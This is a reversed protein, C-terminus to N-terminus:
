NQLSHLINILRESLIAACLAQNRLSRKLSRKPLPQKRVPNIILPQSSENFCHVDGRVAAPLQKEGWIFALVFSHGRRRRRWTLENNEFVRDHRGGRLTAREVKQAHEPSRPSENEHHCFFTRSERVVHLSATQAVGHLHFSFLTQMRCAEFGTYQSRPLPLTWRQLSLSAPPPPHPRHRDLSVSM